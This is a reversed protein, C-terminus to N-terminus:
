EGAGDFQPEASRQDSAFRGIKSVAPADFREKSLGGTFAPSPTSGHTIALAATTALLAVDIASKLPLLRLVDIAVVALVATAAAAALLLLHVSRMATLLALGQQQHL